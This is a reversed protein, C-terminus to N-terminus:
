WCRARRTARSGACSTAAADPGLRGPFEWQVFGFRARPASVRGQAAQSAPARSRSRTSRRSAGRRDPQRDRRPPRDAQDVPQAQAGRQGARRWSRTPASCRGSASTSTTPTTAWRSRTTPARSSDDALHDPAAEDHGAPDAPAPDDDRHDLGPGPPRRSRSATSPPSTSRTAPRTSPSTAPRRDPLRPRLQLSTVTPRLGSAALFELTALVRRDIQGARIDRRGCEYISSARTPAPRAAVLAEKSILLIQGISPDARTPASSRTRARRATSPPPSSCSGATSSRSPISRAPRRPRGPPDRLARAAGHARGQRHPRADHRRDRARRAAARKLM